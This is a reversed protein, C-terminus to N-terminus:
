SAGRARLRKVGPKNSTKPWATPFSERRRGHHSRTKRWASRYNLSPSHPWAARAHTDTRTQEAETADGTKSGMQLETEDSYNERAPISKGAEGDERLCTFASSSRKNAATPSSAALARLRSREHGARVSPVLRWGELLSTSDERRAFRSAQIFGDGVPILPWGELYITM